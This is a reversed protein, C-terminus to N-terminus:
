LKIYLWLLERLVLPCITYGVTNDPTTIYHPTIDHPAIHHPMTHDPGKHHPTTSYQITNYPTTYHRTTSYQSTYDLIRRRTLPPEWLSIVTFVTGYIGIFGLAKSWNFLNVYSPVSLTFLLM